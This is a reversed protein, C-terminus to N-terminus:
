KRKRWLLVVIVAWLVVEAADLAIQLIELM